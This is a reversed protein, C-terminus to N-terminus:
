VLSVSARVFASKRASLVEAHQQLATTSPITCAQPHQLNGSPRPPGKKQLRLDNAPLVPGFATPMMGFTCSIHTLEKAARNHLMLQWETKDPQGLTHEGKDAM